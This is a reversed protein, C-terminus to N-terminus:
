SDRQDDSGAHRWPWARDSRKSGGPLASVRGASCPSALPLHISGRASLRLTTSERFVRVQGLLAAALAAHVVPNLLSVTDPGGPRAATTYVRVACGILQLSLSTVSLVGTHRQRQNRLLQPFKAAAGLGVAVVGVLNIQGPSPSRSLVSRCLAASWLAGLYRSGPRLGDALHWYLLLLVANQVTGFAVEGWTAFSHGALVNHCAWLVGSVLDLSLFVESLGYVDQASVIQAIQPLKYFLAGVLVGYNLVASVLLHLGMLLAGAPFSQVLLAHALCLSSRPPGRLRTLAM